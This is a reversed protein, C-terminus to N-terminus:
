LIVYNLFVSFYFKGPRRQSGQLLHSGRGSVHWLDLVLVRWILKFFINSLSIMFVSDKMDFTKLKSISPFNSFAKGLSTEKSATDSSGIWM